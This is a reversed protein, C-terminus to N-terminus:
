KRAIIVIGALLLLLAYLVAVITAVTGTLFPGILRDLLEVTVVLMALLFLISAIPTFFRRGLALLGSILSGALALVVGVTLLVGLSIWGGVALIAWGVTAVAFFIRLILPATRGLFLFLFALTIAADAVLGIWPGGLKPAVYTFLIALGTLLGAIAFLAGVVPRKAPTTTTM